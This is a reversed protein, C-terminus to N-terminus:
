RKRAGKHLAKSKPTEAKKTKEKDQQEEPHICANVSVAVPENGIRVGTRRFGHTTAVLLRKGSKSLRPPDIVPLTIVLMGERREAKM